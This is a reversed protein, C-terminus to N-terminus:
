RGGELPEIRGNGLFTDLDSRKYRVRGGGVKQFPLHRKQTRWLELASKSYGIYEAAQSTDFYEQPDRMASM